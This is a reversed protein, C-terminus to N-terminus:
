NGQHGIATGGIGFDNLTNSTHGSAGISNSYNNNARLGAM